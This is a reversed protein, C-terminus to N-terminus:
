VYGIDSLLQSTIADFTYKQLNTTTTFDREKVKFLQYIDEIQTLAYGLKEKEIKNSVYGQPGVYIYPKKYPLFEFFKSTVYNKNYESLLILVFDAQGVKEFIKEGIPKHFKVVENNNEFMSEKNTEDTYFDFVPLPGALHKKLYSISENLFKLYNDIGLYLTGAYIIKIKESEKILGTNKKSDEPDFAHPLELFKAIQTKVGTYTEKVEQLLFENPATVFDVNEFVYNQKEREAEKRRRNLNQMGYNQADIWPDRYDALIKIHPFKKKLKATYYVLNFPAGTVFIVQISHKTVVDEALKLFQKEIGIAKDYITGNTLLRLLFSAIRTKFIKFASRYDNLWDVLFFNKFTYQHIRQLEEKSIWSSATSSPSGSSIVSVDYNLKLLSRAIKAWRRGGIAHQPPFDRCIILVNKFSV